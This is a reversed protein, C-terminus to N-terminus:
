CQYLYNFADDLKFWQFLDLCTITVTWDIIVKMEWLFPMAKYIRFAWVTLFRTDRIFPAKFPAQPYGDRLQLASLTFYYLWILYYFILPLRKTPNLLSLSDRPLIMCLEYHV